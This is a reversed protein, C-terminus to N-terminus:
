QHATRDANARVDLHTDQLDTLPYTRNDGESSATQRSKSITRWFTLTALTEQSSLIFALLMFVMAHPRIRAAQSLDVWVPVFLNVHRTDRTKRGTSLDTLFGISVTTSFLVTAYAIAVVVRFLSFAAVRLLISLPIASKTRSFRYASWHLYMTKVLLVKFPLSHQACIILWPPLLVM